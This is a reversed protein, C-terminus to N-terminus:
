NTDGVMDANSRDDANFAVLDSRYLIKAAYLSAVATGTEQADIEVTLVDGVQLDLGSLDWVYNAVVLDDVRQADSTVDSSMDDVDSEGPRARIVQDLDLSIINSGASDDGTTLRATLVVALADKSEDYDLPVTVPVSVSENDADFTIAVMNSVLAAASAGTAICATLPIQKERLFGDGTILGGLSALFNGENM